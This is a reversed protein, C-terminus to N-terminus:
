LAVADWGLGSVAILDSSTLTARSGEGSLWRQAVRRVDAPTVALVQTRFRNLREPGSDKLDACFRAKAEGAPSAPSDVAAITALIAERLPREDDPIDALWARGSRFDTFTEALRPDRYSTLAFVGTHHNIGANGGYAGGQERVKPHLYGHGLMQAAVALAAADDHGLPVTAFVEANYSVATATTWAQSAVPQPLQAALGTGATRAAAPWASRVATLVEAREAADGVVAIHRPGDRLRALLRSLGDALEARRDRAATA